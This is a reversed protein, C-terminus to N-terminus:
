VRRTLFFLIIRRNQPVSINKADANKIRRDNSCFTAKVKAGPLDDWEICM